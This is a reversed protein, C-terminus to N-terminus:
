ARRRVNGEFLDALGFSECTDDMADKWDLPTKGDAQVLTAARTGTVVSTHPHNRFRMIGELAKHEEWARQLEAFEAAAGAKRCVDPHMALAARLYETRIQERGADDALGLIQRISQPVSAM